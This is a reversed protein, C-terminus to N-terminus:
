WVSNLEKDKSQYLSIDVKLRTAVEQAKGAANAEAFQWAEEFQVLNEEFTSPVVDFPFGQWNFIILLLTM